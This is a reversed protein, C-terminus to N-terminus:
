YKYKYLLQYISKLFLQLQQADCLLIDLMALNIEQQQWPCGFACCYKLITWYQLGAATWDVAAPSKYFGAAYKYVATREAAKKKFGPPKKFDGAHCCYIFKAYYM